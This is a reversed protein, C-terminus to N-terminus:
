DKTNIKSLYAFSGTGRKRKPQDPIDCTVDKRIKRLRIQSILSPSVNYDSAIEFNTRKDVFILRVQEDTLKCSGNDEGKFIAKRNKRIMDQTNDKFTGLFLHSPNVCLPNDCTHCVLLGDPIPGNSLEFSVRHSRKLNNTGMQFVGYNGNKGGKRAGTWIWCGNLNSKKDVKKWFNEIRQETFIQNTM